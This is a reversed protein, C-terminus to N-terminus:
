EKIAIAMISIDPIHLIKTRGGGGSMIILLLKTIFRLPYYGLCRLTSLIDLPLPYNDGKIKVVKFGISVLIENLAHPTFFTEHTFDLFAHPIGWLSGINPVSIVIKGKYKLRNYVLELVEFIEEKEFHELINDMLIFDFKLNINKLFNFLDENILITKKLYKQAIEIEEKSLDVGYLKNYGLKEMFYLFFGEGCGLDLILSDKNEPLIKGFRRKYFKVRREYDKIDVGIEKRASIRYLEFIKKRYKKIKEM